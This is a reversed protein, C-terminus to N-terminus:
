HQRPPAGFSATASVITRPTFYTLSRDTRLPYALRDYTVEISERIKQTDAVTFTVPVVLASDPFAYWTFAKVRDSEKEIRRRAGTAWPSAAAFAQDSRYTVSVLLPRLRSNLTLRRTFSVLTDGSAGAPMITDNVVLWPVTAPRATPLSARLIRGSLLTDRDDYTLRVGNLYEGSSLSVTGSDSGLSYYQQVKVAQEWTENYVPQFLLYTGTVIIGVGVLALAARGRFKRLWFLDAGTSRYVAAFAYVFPISILSFFLIFAGNHLVSLMFTEMSAQALLRQILGIYESFVLRVIPYPALIIFFAKLVPPRLLIALVLLILSLSPYVGLEANALSLSIMLALLLIFARLYYPYPDASLRVVRKMRFVLWLGLLGCLLGLVAFGGFNNVWPYRYGRIIGVVNESLWIFSQVILTCLLLKLTSWRIRAAPVQPLRKRRLRILAIVGLIVAISAIFRLLLHSFFVPVHNVVVLWYNETTRSPVGGDFREFLKLVLDGSRALGAPNFNKWNDLPTHIPYSVDSTFDIAPIGSKLFPMHDSGTEGATSSNLTSAHTPYILGEGKLDNYYIDFTADVLWTPASIQYEGDPDAQLEGSGDAMDIQLMLAVDKLRPYSAVFYESGRLGEEEGGWCCFVITSEHSGKCLVRALEIVSAAGSGDDNAGPIDPGASDIHGGILIIRGTKGKLVGVAIGSSTNVGAAVTMPMVYAEQCGSSRFREAAFALARQEAPSGMPRPGITNVLVGLAAYASDGSFATKQADGTSVALLLALTPALLSKM